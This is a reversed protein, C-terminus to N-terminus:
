KRFFGEQVVILVGHQDMYSKGRRRGVDGSKVEDPDELPNTNAERLFAPDWASEEGSRDWRVNQRPGKDVPSPFVESAVTGFSSTQVMRVRDGIKFSM